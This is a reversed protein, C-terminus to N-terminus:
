MSLLARFNVDTSDLYISLFFFLFEIQMHEAFAAMRRQHLAEEQDMITALSQRAKEELRHAEAELKKAEAERDRARAERQQALVDYMKASTEAQRAKKELHHAETEWAL